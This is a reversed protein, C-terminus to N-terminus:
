RKMSELKSSMNEQKGKMQRVDTLVRNVDDPKVKMDDGKGTSIQGYFICPNLVVPFVSNVIM